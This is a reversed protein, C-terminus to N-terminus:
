AEKYAWGGAASGLITTILSLVTGKAVLGMTLMGGTAFGFLVLTVALFLVMGATIATKPGPGFRPRMAAYTFVVLIGLLFDIVVWTAIGTPSEAAAPDLGLRTANARYDEALVTTNWIFDMVNYVLGALLGATVVKGTNISSM